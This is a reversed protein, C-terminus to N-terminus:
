KRKNSKSMIKELHAKLKNVDGSICDKKLCVFEIQNFVLVLRNADEIYSTLQKLNHTNKEVEEGNKYMAETCLNDDITVLLFDMENFKQRKFSKKQSSVITLPIILYVIELVVLACLLVIDWVISKHNVIDVVLMAVMCALLIPILIAIVKDRKRRQSKYVYKASAICDEQQMKYKCQFM